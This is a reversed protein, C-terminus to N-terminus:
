QHVATGFWQSYITHQTDFLLRVKLTADLILTMGCGGLPLSPADVLQVAKAYLAMDYTIVTIYEEGVTLEKLQHAQKMVTLLTSWEHAVEPLLPLDGVQILPKSTSVLSNYGAWGPIQSSREDKMRSLTSAVVWGLHTLQYSDAVGFNNISFERARQQSATAKPKECPLM